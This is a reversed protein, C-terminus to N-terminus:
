RPGELNADFALLEIQSEVFQQAVAVGADDEVEALQGFQITAAQALDHIAERTQFRRAACKTKCSRSFHDVAHQFQGM